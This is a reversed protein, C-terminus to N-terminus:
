EVTRTFEHLRKRDLENRLNFWFRFTPKTLAMLATVLWLAFYLCRSKLNLQTDPHRLDFKLDTNKVYKAVAHYTSRFYRSVAGGAYVFLVLKGGVPLSQYAEIIALANTPANWTQTKTLIIDEEGVGYHIAQLRMAEFWLVGTPGVVISNDVVYTVQCGQQKLKRYFRASDEITARTFSDPRASDNQDFGNGLLFLAYHSM